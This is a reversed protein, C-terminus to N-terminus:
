QTAGCSSCQYGTTVPEDWAAQDTVTEDWAGSVLVNEYHGTEESIMVEKITYNGHDTELAHDLWADSNPFQAGCTICICVNGYQAPSDVVYQQNYVADHHVVHTIADHHVTTTIPVWNHVHQAPQSPQTPQTTLPAVPQSSTSSSNTNQNTSASHSNPQTSSDTGQKDDSPTGGTNQKIGMMAGSIASGGSRGDRDITMTPRVASEQVNNTRNRSLLLVGAGGLCLLLLVIITNRKITKKNNM